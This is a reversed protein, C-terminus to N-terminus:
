NLITIKRTDIIRNGSSIRIVYTGPLLNGVDLHETSQQVSLKWHNTEVGTLNFLSIDMNEQKDLAFELILHRGYPEAYIKIGKDHAIGEIGVTGYEFSLNDIWMVTGTHDAGDLPNSNLIIINLTDPTGEKLYYVPVEFRTWSNITGFTDVVGYGLTDSTGNNWRFLGLGIICKDNNVPQYKFYGTLKEPKGSFPYGGSVSATQNIMDLNLKGLTLLAPIKYTSGFPIAIKKTTLKAAATGQQPDTAEMSVTTITGLLPISQNSTNWSNPEGGSWTEFSNNPIQQASCNLYFILLIFQLPIIRNM